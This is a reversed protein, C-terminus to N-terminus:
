FRRERLNPMLLIRSLSRPKSNSSLLPLRASESPPQPFAVSHGHDSAYSLIKAFQGMVDFDHVLHVSKGAPAFASTTASTALLFFLAKAFKMKITSEKNDQVIFSKHSHLVIRVESSSIDKRDSLVRVHTTTPISDRVCAGYIWTLGGSVNTQRGVADKAPAGDHTSM